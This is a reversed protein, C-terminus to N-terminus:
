KGSLYSIIVQNNDKQFPSPSLVFFGERLFAKKSAQITSPIPISGV